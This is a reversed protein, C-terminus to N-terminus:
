KVKAMNHINELMCCEYDPVLDIGYLSERLYNQNVGYQSVCAFVLIKKICFRDFSYHPMQPVSGIFSYSGWVALQLLSKAEHRM